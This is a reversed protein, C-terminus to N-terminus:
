DNLLVELGTLIGKFQNVPDKRWIFDPREKSEWTGGVIENRSNLEIRYVYKKIENFQEKTGKVPEWTINDVEDIYMLDTQIRMEKVATKASRASVPLNADVITSKFGVIPQNWVEKTRMVDAQFGKKRIGLQNGIVIHFAGANLDQNCYKTGLLRDGFQCRKGMQSSKVDKHFRAYYFSLLAKIDSSGFPVEIGDVSVLVKPLPENHHIAAPAWGHCIGEWALAEPKVRNAVYGKLPYDFNGTYIDWKESPSLRALDDLSMKQVQEFSPSAYNFGIPTETNWRLNIGGKYNAWYPASWGKTSIDMGGELPLANFNRDYTADFINPNSFGEWRTTPAAYATTTLLTTLVLLRLSM